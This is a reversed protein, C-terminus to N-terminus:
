WEEPGDEHGSPAAMVAVLVAETRQLGGVAGEWSLAHPGVSGSVACNAQAQSAERPTAAAPVVPAKPTVVLM